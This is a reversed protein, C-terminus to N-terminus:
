KLKCDRSLKIAAEITFDARLDFVVNTIIKGSITALSLKLTQCPTQICGRRPSFDYLVALFSANTELVLSLRDLPASTCIELRPPDWTHIFIVSHSLTVQSM